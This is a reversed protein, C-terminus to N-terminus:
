GIRSSSSSAARVVISEFSTAASNIAFCADALKDVRPDIVKVPPIAASRGAGPSRDDGGDVAREDSERAGEREFECRDADVDECWAPHLRRKPVLHGVLFRHECIHGIAQWAAADSFGVVDALGDEVDCL